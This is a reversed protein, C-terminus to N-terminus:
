LDRLRRTAEHLTNASENAADAMPWLEKVTWLLNHAHLALLEVDGAKAAADIEEYTVRDCGCDPHMDRLKTM